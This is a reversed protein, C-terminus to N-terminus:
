LGFMKVEIHFKVHILDECNRIINLFVMRALCFIDAAGIQGKM